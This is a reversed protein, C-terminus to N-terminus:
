VKWSLSPAQEPNGPHEAGSAWVMAQVPFKQPALVTGHRAHPPAWCINDTSLFIRASLM